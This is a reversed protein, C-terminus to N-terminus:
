QGPRLLSALGRAAGAGKKLAPPSGAAPKSSKAAVKALFKLKEDTTM